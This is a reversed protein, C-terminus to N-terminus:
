LLSVVGNCAVIDTDIFAPADAKDNFQGRQEIPTIKGTCLTRSDRGNAMELLNKGAKCPLMDTTLSVGPVVHFLLLDTLPVTDNGFILSDLNDQGLAEFAADTPAFITWADEALDDSLDSIEVAQCLTQLGMGETCLISTISECTETPIETSNSDEDLFTSLVNPASLLALLISRITLANFNM